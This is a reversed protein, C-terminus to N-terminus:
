AVVGGLRSRQVVEREGDGGCAVRITRDLQGAGPKRARNREAVAVALRRKAVAVGVQEVGGAAVVLRHRLQLRRDRDEGLDALM